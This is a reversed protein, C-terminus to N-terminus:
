PNRDACEIWKAIESKANELQKKLYECESCGESQGSAKEEAEKAQLKTELEAIREERFKIIM